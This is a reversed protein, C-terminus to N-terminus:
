KDEIMAINRDIELIIDSIKKKMTTINQHSSTREVEKLNKYGEEMRNLKSREDELQFILKKNEAALKQNTKKIDEHLLILDEIREQLVTFNNKLDNSVSM